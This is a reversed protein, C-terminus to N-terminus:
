YDVGSGIYVSIEHITGPSSTVTVFQTSDDTTPNAGIASAQGWGYAYRLALTTALVLPRKAAQLPLPKRWLVGSTGGVFDFRLAATPASTDFDTFAGAGIRLTPSLQYIAGARVNAVSPATPRYDVQASLWGWDALYAVGLRGVFRGIADGAAGDTTSSQSDTVMAEQGAVTRSVFTANESRTSGFVGVLPPELALGAAIRRSITWQVGLIGGLGGATAQQGSVMSVFTRRGSAELGSLEFAFLSSSRMLGFNLTAGVRLQPLAAWALTVGTRYLASTSINRAYKRLKCTNGDPANTDRNTDVSESRPVTLSLALVLDSRMARAVVVAPPVTDFASHAAPTEVLGNPTQTRLFAPIEFVRVEFLSASISIRDRDVGALGAPNYAVSGCDDGAAVVAAAAVAAQDGMPITDNNGAGAPAELM